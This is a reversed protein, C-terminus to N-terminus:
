LYQELELAVTKLITVVANDAGKIGAAIRAKNNIHDICAQVGGDQKIETRQKAPSENAIDVLKVQTDVDVREIIKILDPLDKYFSWKTLKNDGVRHKKWYATIIRDKLRINAGYGQLDSIELSPFRKRLVKVNEHIKSM